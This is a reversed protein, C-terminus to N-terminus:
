SYEALQLATLAGKLSVVFKAKSLKNFSEKDDPLHGLKAYEKRFKGM